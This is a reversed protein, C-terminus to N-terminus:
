KKLVQFRPGDLRRGSEVSSQVLTNLDTLSIGATLDAIQPVTYDSFSEVPREGVVAELYRTREEVRPLPVQVAAVHPNKTFRESIDSLASDILVVAMNIRKFYPST